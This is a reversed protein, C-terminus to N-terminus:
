LELQNMKYLLDAVNKGGLKESINRRHTKITLESLSLQQAIERTTKGSTILNIIERERKTLSPASATPKVKAAILNPDLFQNGALVQQLAEELIKKGSIKLIYADGIFTDLSLGVDPPQHTTLIIVRITPHQDKLQQLIQLGNEQSVSIDLLLLDLTNTRLWDFLEEGRHATFAVEMWDYGHLIGAIGEVFLPHDDLIGTKIKKM